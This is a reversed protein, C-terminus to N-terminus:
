GGGRQRDTRRSSASRCCKWRCAASLEKLHLTGQSHAALIFPRDGGHFLQLLRRSTASCACRRTPPPPPPTATPCRSGTSTRGADQASQGAQRYRPAIAAAGNFAAATVILGDTMLRSATTGTETQKDGFYATPPVFFADVPPAQADVGCWAPVIDAGDARSPARGARRHLRRLRRSRTTPCAPEKGEKTATATLCAAPPPTSRATCSPQLQARPCASVIRHADSYAFAYRGRM